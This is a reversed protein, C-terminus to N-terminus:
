SKVEPPNALYLSANSLMTLSPYLPNRDRSECVADSILLLCDDLPTCQRGESSTCTHDSGEPTGM